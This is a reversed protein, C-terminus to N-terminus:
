TITVVYWTMLSAISELIVATYPCSVPTDCLEAEKIQGVWWWVSSVAVTAEGQVRLLHEHVCTPKECETILFEIEAWSVDIEAM